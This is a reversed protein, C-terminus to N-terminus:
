PTVGRAAMLGAVQVETLNAYPEKMQVSLGDHGAGNWHKQVPGVLTEIRGLLLEVDSKTFARGHPAKFVLLFNAQDLYGDPRRYYSNEPDFGSWGYVWPEGVQYLPHSDMVPLDELRANVEGPIAARTAVDRAQYATEAQVELEYRLERTVRVRFTKM